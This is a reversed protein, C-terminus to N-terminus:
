EGSLLEEGKKIFEKIKEKTDETIGKIQERTDKGSKPAFLVGLVAGIAIGATLGLLPKLNDRNGM